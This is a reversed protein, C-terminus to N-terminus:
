VYLDFQHWDFHNSLSRYANKVLTQAYDPNKLVKLIGQALSDPNNKHTVVGTRDHEVIESLGGTDSVVVPVRAAFRPIRDARGRVWWGARRPRHGPPLGRVARADCAAGAVM